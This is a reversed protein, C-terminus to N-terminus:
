VLSILFYKLFKRLFRAMIWFNDKKMRWFMKVTRTFSNVHLISYHCLKVFLLHNFGSVCRTLFYGGDLTLKHAHSQRHLRKIVIINWVCNQLTRKWGRARLKSLIETLSLPKETELTQEHYHSHYTSFKHTSHNLEQVFM